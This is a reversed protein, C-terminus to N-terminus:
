WDFSNLGCNMREFFRGTGAHSSRCLLISTGNSFTQRCEVQAGGSSRVLRGRWDSQPRGRANPQPLRGVTNPPLGSSPANDEFDGSPWFTLALFLALNIMAGVVTGYHGHGLSWVPVKAAVVHDVVTVAIWLPIICVPDWGIDRIRMSQLMFSMWTYAIVAILVPWNTLDIAPRMGKPTHQFLYAAVAFGVVVMAIVLAITALFYHLRGLRANFGFLFGLMPTDM